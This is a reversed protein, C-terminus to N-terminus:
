HGIRQCKEFKELSRGIERSTKGSLFFDVAESVRDVDVCTNKCPGEPRINLVGIVPLPNTDLIGETLDRECAIAVIARPKHEVVMKRALTGGTVVALNVGKQKSLKWLRDIDCRGCHHCNSVDATVKYPCDWKQLCHPALILIRAPDINFVRSQTLKNNVEIYSSKIIDRPIHLMEGLALAIPFLINISVNMLDQLGFFTKVHWLTMVVGTLGISVIFIFISLFAVILLLIYRYWNGFKNLYIFIGTLLMLVILAISATLLGIFIRKKIRVNGEAPKTM